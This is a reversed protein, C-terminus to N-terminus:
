NIISHLVRKLADKSNMAPLGRVNGDGGPGSAAIWRQVEEDHAVDEDTAYAHEVYTDVYRGTADWIELLDRRIPFQDWPGDGTLDADTVGFQELTTTPDDDFFERGEAYLDMLELLQPATAMSTPPIGPLADWGVLLVDDFPIVYKSQPELLRYVPNSPSLNEF